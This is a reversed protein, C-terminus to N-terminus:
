RRRRNWSWDWGWGWCRRRIGEQKRGLLRLLLDEIGFMDDQDNSLRDPPIDKGEIVLALLERVDELGFDLLVLLDSGEDSSEFFFFWVIQGEDVREGRDARECGLCDERQKTLDPREIHGERHFGPRVERADWADELFLVLFM